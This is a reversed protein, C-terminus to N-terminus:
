KTLFERFRDNVITNLDEKVQERLSGIESVSDNKTLNKPLFLQYPEINLFSCIENLSDSSPYKKQNEIAAIMSHGLSVKEAFKEQSLGLALRYRRLNVALVDRVKDQKYDGM